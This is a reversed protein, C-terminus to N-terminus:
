RGSPSVVEGVPRRPTPSISPAHGLRLLVQPQGKIALAEAVKPRLEALEIPPNLYSASVGAITAVLLMHQLAQGAALWSRATDEPTALLAIVPSAEAQTRQSVAAAEGTAFQRATAAATMTFQDPRDCSEPTRGTASGMRTYVERLADQNEGLRKHLWDRLENRFATDGLHIREAQGVLDAVRRKVQGEVAFSSQAREVRAADALDRLLEDALPRDEFAGRFTRRSPIADRLRLDLESVPTDSPALRIEALLTTDKDDPLFVADVDYGFARAAFRLNFLAAGCSITLERKEPDVVSLARSPDAQFLIANGRVRFRWPQTNLISPALVAYNLLYSLKDRRSAIRSFDGATVQWPDALLPTPRPPM